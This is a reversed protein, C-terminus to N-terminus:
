ESFWMTSIRIRRDFRPNWNLKPDVAYFVPLDFFPFFIVDEHARTALDTM